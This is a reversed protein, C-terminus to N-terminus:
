GEVSFVEVAMTKGKLQFPGQAELKFLDGVAERTTGDILIAKGLVKTHSELRAALNVTDGM